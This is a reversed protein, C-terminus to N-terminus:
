AAEGEAEDSVAATEKPHHTNALVDTIYDVLTKGDVMTIRTVGDSYVEVAAEDRITELAIRYGPREIWPAIRCLMRAPFWEGLLGGRKDFWKCHVPALAKRDQSFGTIVMRPGPINKVRVTDGVRFQNEDSM